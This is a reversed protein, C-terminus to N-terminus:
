RISEIIKLAEEKNVPGAVDYSTLGDMWTILIDDYNYALYGTFGNPLPINVGEENQSYYTKGIAEVSSHGDVSYSLLHKQGEKEFAMYLSWGAWNIYAEYDYFVWGAPAYHPVPPTFGLFDCIVQFDTSKEHLTENGDLDAVAAPMLHVGDVTVERIYYQEDESVYSTYSGKPWFADAIMVGTLVLVLSAALPLIRKTFPHRRKGMTKKIQVWNEAQRTEMPAPLLSELINECEMIYATDIENEPKQLQSEIENTLTERLADVTITGDSLMQMLAYAKAATENSQM